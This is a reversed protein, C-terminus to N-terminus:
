GAVADIASPAKQRVFFREAVLLNPIWCMWAIVAYAVPFAIGAVISLPLYIRLTVAALTLAYNRVMWNRHSAIDGNRITWFAMAGTFLWAVGLLGFGLKTGIGGTAHWAMIVGGIGSLLVALLYIRGLIRHVNIARKRLATNVQFAGIILAVGGGLIHLHAAEFPLSAFKELLDASGVGEVLSFAFAYGAVGIALFTMILWAPRYKTLFSTAM